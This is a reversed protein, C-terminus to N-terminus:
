KLEFKSPYFGKRFLDTGFMTPKYETIVDVDAKEPIQRELGVAWFCANVLLRRLDENMFDIAAGMTTTFVRGKKGTPGTYTNTWAVPMVSKNLNVPADATMGSTSLGYILPECDGHLKRVTYVDTYCWIDKIGNLIPNKADQQVGDILGRTGEHGHKGHHNVWTEGLIKRGFGDEWGKVTSKFDYMSYPGSTNKKYNFAHTATRLAVVPKGAKIYNHIYKMQDDPLERFRTFIVMLDASELSKLGPINDLVMPDIMGSSPDIAFLVTSTFGYKKSLIAALMPLAEESRYEEDGSIFVVHKGKGPGNTGEYQIWQSQQGHASMISTIFVIIFYIRMM